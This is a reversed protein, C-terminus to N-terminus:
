EQLDRNNKERDARIRGFNNELKEVVDAIDYIAEWTLIVKRRKM